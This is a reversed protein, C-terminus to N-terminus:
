RVQARLTEILQRYDRLVQEVADADGADFAYRARSCGARLQGLRAAEGTDGAETAQHILATYAAMALSIAEQAVEYRVAQQSDWPFEPLGALISPEPQSM